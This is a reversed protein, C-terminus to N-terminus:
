APTGTPPHDAPPPQGLLRRVRAFGALDGNALLRDLAAEALAPDAPLLVATHAAAARSAPHDGERGPPVPHDPPPGVAVSSAAGSTSGEDLCPEIRGDRPATVFSPASAPAVVSSPEPENRSSEDTPAPEPADDLAPADRAALTRLLRHLERALQAQHRLVANLEPIRSLLRPLGPDPFLRGTPCHPEISALTAELRDCRALKWFAVALREVLLDESPSKPRHEARLDALLRDFAAPDEGPALIAPSCLGHRFANRSARAKGEPSVPGRSRAGNARAAARQAESRPRPPLTTPM